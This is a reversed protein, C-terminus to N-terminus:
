RLGLTGYGEFRLWRMKNRFSEVDDFGWWQNEHVLYPVQHEPHWHRTANDALLECM